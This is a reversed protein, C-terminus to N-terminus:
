TVFEGTNKQVNRSGAFLLFYRRFALPLHRAPTPPAFAKNKFVLCVPLAKDSKAFEKGSLSLNIVGCPM